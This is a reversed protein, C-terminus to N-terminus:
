KLDSITCKQYTLFKLQDFHDGQIGIVNDLLFLDALSSTM